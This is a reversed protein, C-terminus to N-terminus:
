CFYATTHIGTHEHGNQTTKSVDVKLSVDVQMISECLNLIKKKDKNTTMLLFDYVDPVAHSDTFSSVIKM